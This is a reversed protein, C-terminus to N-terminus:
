VFPHFLRGSVANEYIRREVAEPFRDHAARTIRNSDKVAGTEVHENQPAKHKPFLCTLTWPAGACGRFKPRSDHCHRRDIRHDVALQHIQALIPRETEILHNAFLDHQSHCACRITKSARPRESATPLCDFLAIGPWSIDCGPIRSYM